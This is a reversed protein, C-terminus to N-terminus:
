LCVSVTVTVTVSLSTVGCRQALRGRVTAQATGRDDGPVEGQGRGGRGVDVHRVRGEGEGKRGESIDTSGCLFQRVLAM